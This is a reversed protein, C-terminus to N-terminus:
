RASSPSSRTAARSSQVLSRSCRGQDISCSGSTRATRPDNMLRAVIRAALSRLEAALEVQAIWRDPLASAGSAAGALAGTVAAFTDANGPVSAARSITGCLTGPSRGWSRSRPPLPRSPRRISRFRPWCRTSSSPPSPCRWGVCSCPSRMARPGSLVAGGEAVRPHRVYRPRRDGAPSGPDNAFILGAAVRSVARGRRVLRSGGRVVARGRPATSRQSSRRGPVRLSRVCSVLRDSVVPAAGVGHSLLADASILLQQVGARVKGSPGTLRKRSSTPTSSSLRALVGSSRRRSGASLAAWPPASFRAPSGTSSSM